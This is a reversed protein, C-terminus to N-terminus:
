KEGKLNSELLIHKVVGSKKPMKRLVSWLLSMHAVKDGGKISQVSKTL